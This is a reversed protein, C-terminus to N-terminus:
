VLNNFNSNVLTPYILLHIHRNGQKKLIRFIAKQVNYSLVSTLIITLIYWFAIDSDLVPTFLKLDSESISLYQSINQDLM